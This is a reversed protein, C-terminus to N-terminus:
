VRISLRTEWEYYRATFTEGMAFVNWVRTGNQNWNSQERATFEAITTRIYRGVVSKFGACFFIDAAQLNGFSHWILKLKIANEKLCLLVDM